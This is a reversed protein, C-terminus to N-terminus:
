LFRELTQLLLEQSFETKGLYADAGAKLGRARDVETALSSVLIVPIEHTAPDGKIRAVLELGDMRPMQLDSLVLDFNSQNLKTLADVGDTAVDVEYGAAQLIASELTRTTISDDAILIRRRKAKAKDSQGFLARPTREGVLKEVLDGVNLLPVIRGSALVTAGAVNQVRGLHDGLGKVILEHEGDIADVLLAAQAAGSAVVIAPGKEALSVPERLGLLHSLREIPVPRGEVNCVLGSDVQKIDDRHVRLVRVVANIPLCFQESGVRTLLMRMSTLNLPLRVIFETGLGRTSELAVSGGCRGVNKRVVDLGVGRGSVEDVSRATSFGPRFLLENLQQKDLSGEESRNLVGTEIAVKRVRELDVGAGDDRISLQLGGARGVATVRVSGSAAKGVRTREVETEIGHSIANRLLHMVPDKIVDVLDRDIETTGGVLEYSVTKGLKTAVDRVLRPFGAFAQEVPIMRVARIDDQLRTALADLSHAHRRVDEAVRASAATQRAHVKVLEELAAVATHPIRADRLDQKLRESLEAARESLLDVERSDAIRKSGSSKIAVLDEVGSMLRQIKDTAVRITSADDAQAKTGTTAEGEARPLVVDLLPLEAGFYARLEQLTPGPAHTKVQTGSCEKEILAEIADLARYLLELAAPDLATQESLTQACSEWNHLSLSVAKLGAAGAAGKISHAARLAAALHERVDGRGAEAELLGNNMVLLHEEAESRFLQLLRENQGPAIGTM